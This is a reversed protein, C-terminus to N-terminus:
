VLPDNMPCERSTGLNMMDRLLVIIYLFLLLILYNDYEIVSSAQDREKKALDDACRNAESCMDYTHCLIGNSFM